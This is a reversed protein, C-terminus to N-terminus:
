NIEEVDCTPAYGVDHQGEGVSGMSDGQNEGIVAALIGVALGCQGVALGWQGVALGLRFYEGLRRSKDLARSWKGVNHGSALQQFIGLWGGGWNGGECVGSLDLGGLITPVQLLLGQFTSHM